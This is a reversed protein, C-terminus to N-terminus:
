GAHDVRIIRDLQEKESLRNPVNKGKLNTM